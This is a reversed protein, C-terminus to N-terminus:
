PVRDSGSDGDRRWIGEGSRQDLDSAKPGPDTGATAWTGRRQEGLGLAVSASKKSHFTRASLSLPFADWM